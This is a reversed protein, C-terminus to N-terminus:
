HMFQHYPYYEVLDNLKVATHEPISVLGDAWHLSSVIHSQQRQFLTIYSQTINGNEPMILRARLFNQRDTPRYNFGAPVQYPTIDIHKTSAGQAKQILPRALLLLTCLASVPNGPLGIFPTQNISGLAIPKGPKIRVRWTHLEGIQKLAAKIIDKDGVSVGGTTIILDSKESAELLVKQSEKLDDGITQNLSLAMGWENLITAICPRNADYIKGAQWTAGLPLLEDGTSFLAVRLPRYTKITDIGANALLLIQRHRLRDGQTLLTDGQQFDEGSPRIFQGSKVAEKFTVKGNKETSLEQPIVADAGEPIIAGTFIRACQNCKIQQPRDGATAIISTPFYKDQQWDNTCIAYGDMASNPLPPMTIPARIDEALYRNFAHKLPTKEAKSLCYSERKINDLAQQFSIM